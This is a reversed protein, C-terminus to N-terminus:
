LPLEMFVNARSYHMDPLQSPPVHRFGASEYLAIAPKLASNSGLFLSRAGDACAEAIAYRLLARGIGRGQFGPAVAMKSLEYRGPDMPVLAVCGADHGDCRAIFIRGGRRLIASEPDDLLERDKEEIVFYRSIWEENLTRFATADDGIGLERISVVVPVKAAQPQNHQASSPSSQNATPM